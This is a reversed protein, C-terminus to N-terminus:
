KWRNNSRDTDPLIEDPDLVISRITRGGTDIGARWRNTQHWIEIPLDIVESSDDAYEVKMRIPMVMEGLNDLVVIAGDDVSKVSAIAQDLSYPELFWERWFWNLDMGAGDEMSRFFDAPQPHKFMWRNAYGMFAMDFREPGLIYERLLYLGYGTKRYNLRGTWRPWMRDPATMIPQNQEAGAMQMTQQAARTVDIDEGRWNAKSYMNIFTNFGEDQWMYRREDSNVVMPFWNHGIEHDTVGFMGNSNTRGGCFVIGPYEMGGEPGNINSMVPYPYPFLFDSYFEISHKIVRSSGGDEDTNLWVKAEKPYLSQCLVTRSTGDRQPVDAKCADWIFADSAAWAFTRANDVHFRWTFESAVGPRNENSGVEEPELIWVPEDSGMAVGLRDRQTQTLVENGNVLSGSGAVLYERPVTISVDYNGFDTYFEGSGLYPLTNWGHVDDYKCMQPFWQAIEYVTGQEVEESGMRRLHPPIKFSFEMEFVFTEGSYIPNPLDLRGLTDYVSMELEQGGTIGATRISPIIFGGDFDDELMKMVSGPTRTRTGISNTNFLNQSLNLWMYELTDPSNNHYVVQMTASVTGADPDLRAQISYDTQQQWYASGPLGSGLRMQTPTPWDIQKFVNNGDSGGQRRFADDVAGVSLSDGIKANSARPTTSACGGVILSGLLVISSCLLSILRMSGNVMDPRWVEGGVIMKPVWKELCKKKRVSIAPCM